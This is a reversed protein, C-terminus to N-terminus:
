TDNCKVSTGDALMVRKAHINGRPDIKQKSGATVREWECFSVSFLLHLISNIASCIPHKTKQTAVETSKGPNEMNPGHIRVLQKTGAFAVASKTKMYSVTKTFPTQLHNKHSTKAARTLRPHAGAILGTVM